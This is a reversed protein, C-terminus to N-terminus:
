ISYIEKFGGEEQGSSRLLPLGLPCSVRDALDEEEEEGAAAAPKAARAEENKKRPDAEVIALSFDLGSCVDRVHMGQPLIILFM